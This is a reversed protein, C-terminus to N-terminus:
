KKVKRKKRQTVYNLSDQQRIFAKLHKSNYFFICDALGGKTSDEYRDVHRMPLGLAYEMAFSDVALTALPHYETMEWLFHFSPDLKCAATDHKNYRLHNEICYCLALNRLQERNWRASFEMNRKLRRWDDVDRYEDM